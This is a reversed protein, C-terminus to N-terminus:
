YLYLARPCATVEHSVKGGNHRVTERPKELLSYLIYLGRAASPCERYLLRVIGTGSLLTTVSSFYKSPFLFLRHSNPVTMASQQRM